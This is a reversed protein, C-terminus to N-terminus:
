IVLAPGLGATLAVNASTTGACNVATATCLKEPETAVETTPLATLPVVVTGTPPVVVTTIRATTLLVPAYVLVAETDGGGPVMSGTGPLLVPVWVPAPKAASTVVVTFRGGLAGAPETIVTVAVKLLM